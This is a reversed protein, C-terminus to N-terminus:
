LRDSCLLLEQQSNIDWFKSQRYMEMYKHLPHKSDVGGYEGYFELDIRESRKEKNKNRVDLYYSHAHGHGMCKQGYIDRMIHEHIKLVQLAIKGGKRKGYKNKVVVSLEVLALLIQGSSIPTDSEVIQSECIKGKQYQCCFRNKM